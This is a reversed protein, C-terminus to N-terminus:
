WSGTSRRASLEQLCFRTTKFDSSPPTTIWDELDYAAPVAALTDFEADQSQRLNLLGLCGVCSAM